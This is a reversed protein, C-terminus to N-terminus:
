DAYSVQVWEGNQREYANQKVWTGNKRLYVPKTDTTPEDLGISNEKFWDYFDQSVTKETNGFDVVRFASTDSNGYKWYYGSLNMYKVNNIGNQIYSLSSFGNSYKSNFDVTMGEFIIGNSVFSVEERIDSRSNDLTDDKLTENFIWIGKLTAM